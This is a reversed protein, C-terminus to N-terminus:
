WVMQIRFNVSTKPDVRGATLATMKRADFSYLTIQGVPNLHTTQDRVDWADILKRALYLSLAVVQHLHKVAHHPPEL